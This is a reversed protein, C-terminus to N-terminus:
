NYNIKMNIRSICGDTKTTIDSISKACTVFTYFCVGMQFRALLSGPSQHLLESVFKEAYPIPIIFYPLDPHLGDFNNHIFSRAPREQAIPILVKNGYHHREGVFSKPVPQLCSSPSPIRFFFEPPHRKTGDPTIGLQFLSDQM